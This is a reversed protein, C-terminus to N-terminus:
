IMRHSWGNSALSRYPPWLGDPELPESRSVTPAWWSGTPCRDFRTHGSAESGTGAPRWHVHRVVEVRAPEAAALEVGVAEAADAAQYETEAAVVAM